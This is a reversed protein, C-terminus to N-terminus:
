FRYNETYMGHIRPTRSLRLTKSQPGKSEFPIDVTKVSSLAALITAMAAPHVKRSPHAISILVVNHLTSLARQDGHLSVLRLCREGYGNLHTETDIDFVLSLPAYTSTDGQGLADFLQFVAVTFVSSEEAEDEGDYCDDDWSVHVEPEGLDVVMFHVKRLAKRRAPVRRLMEAFRGIEGDSLSCASFNETETIAQWTSLRDDGDGLPFDAALRFIRLLLEDSLRDM